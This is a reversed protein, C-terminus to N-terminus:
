GPLKSKLWKQHSRFEPDFNEVLSWFNASHNMHKLHSLEHIIVYDIIALPETILRWNLSITGKSSCSGWRTRTDRVSLKKPKLHMRSAWLQVHLQFWAQATKKFYKAYAEEYEDWSYNRHAERHCLLFQEKIEFKLKKNATEVFKLKLEHGLYRFIKGETYERGPNKERLVSFKALSKEVWDKNELIFDALVKEPTSMNTFVQLKGDYAIKLRHRRIFPKRIIEYKM